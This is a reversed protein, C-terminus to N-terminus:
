RQAVGACFKSLLRAIEESGHQLAMVRTHVRPGSRDYVLLRAVTILEASVAPILMNVGRAWHSYPRTEITRYVPDQFSSAM